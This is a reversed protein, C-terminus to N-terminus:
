LFSLMLAFVFMQLESDLSGYGSYVFCESLVIQNKKLPCFEQSPVELFFTELLYMFIM